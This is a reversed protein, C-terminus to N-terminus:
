PARTRVIRRVAVGAPGQVRVFYVGSAVSRGADDNGDWGFVGPGAADPALGRVRRGRVDHITATLDTVDGVVIAVVGSSPNPRISEITVGARTTSVPARATVISAVIADHDSTADIIGASVHVVDVACGRVLAPSVLIRDYAHANGEFVYSYREEEPLKWLLDYLATSSSLPALAGSFLDDNFDGAVVIRAGDDIRLISQVFDRVITAQALRKDARPDFPPQTAGFEPTTGIRSSFHCVVLFLPRGDVRFEAALPKRADFWAPHAPEIRGPSITLAAGSDAPVASTGANAAPEGRDVFAVRTPDFLVAVRINGGPEGGDAGDAPAVERAAYRPGGARLIAALLSDLTATADVVGDDLSGSSDQVEQLALIAPSGLNRVVISAIRPLRDGDLPALNHVNFTAVTIRKGTVPLAVTEPGPGRTLAVPVTTPLVEFCGFRYDLVGVIDRTTDGINFAPMPVSLLGDDVQVHEPNADFIGATLAGRASIGSAGGAAVVHFEGFANTTGVVRPEAVRVRMGEMSEWFDLGDFAPDFVALADDDIVERPPIRGSNGILVPLPLPRGRAVIRVTAPHIETVTLNEADNGPLFEIVTGTVEVDDGAVVAPVSGAYVFLGDSTSEDGDGLPDQLYFGSETTVTVIGRTTVAANAFSSVHARGQVEFTPTFAALLGGAAFIASLV